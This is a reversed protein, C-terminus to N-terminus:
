KEIWIIVSNSLREKLTVKLDYFLSAKTYYLKRIQYGTNTECKMQIVDSIDKFYDLSFYYDKSEITVKVREGKFVEVQRIGEPLNSESLSNLLVAISVILAVVSIVVGIIAIYKVKV